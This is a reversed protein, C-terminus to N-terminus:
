KEERMFYMGVVAEGGEGTEDGGRTEGRGRDLICKNKYNGLWLKQKKMCVLQKLCSLCLSRLVEMCVTKINRDLSLINITLVHNEKGLINIQGVFLFSLACQHYLLNTLAKKTQAM